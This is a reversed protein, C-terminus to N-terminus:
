AVKAQEREDRSAGVVPEVVGVNLGWLYAAIGALTRETIPKGAHKAQVLDISTMLRRMSGGVARYWLRFAADDVATIHESKLIAAMESETLGSSQVWLGVRSTLAALDQLRSAQMREMLVPAALLVVGVGADRTRDWIQRIVQMIRGRVSECQDFILLCPHEVLYACVARLTRGGYNAGGRYEVGLLEALREIFDCANSCAFEDFEFIVAERGCGEGHERWYRVAETKGAGYTATVVGIAAHQACYSLAQGVKRLTETVFVECRRRISLVPRAQSGSGGAADMAFIEGARALRLVRELEAAMEDSPTRQGDLVHRLTSPAFKTHASIRDPAVDPREALFAKVREVIDQM